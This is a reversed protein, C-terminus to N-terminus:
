NLQYVRQTLNLFRQWQEPSIESDDYGDMLKQSENIEKMIKTYESLFTAQDIENDNSKKQLKEMRVIATEMKDLGKDMPDSSNAIILALVLVVGAVIAVFKGKSKLFESVNIAKIQQILNAPSAINVVVDTKAGCNTCFVANNELETGCNECFM